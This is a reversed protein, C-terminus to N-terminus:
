VGPLMTIAVPTRQRSLPVETVVPVCNRSFPFFIFFIFIKNKIHQMNQINLDSSVENSQPELELSEQTNNKIILYCATQAFRYQYIGKVYQHSSHFNNAMFQFYHMYSLMDYNCEMHVTADHRFLHLHMFHNQVLSYIM